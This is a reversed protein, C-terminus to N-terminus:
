SPIDKECFRYIMTAVEARTITGRPDIMQDPKGSIIGNEVVWGLPLKAYDSVTQADQFGSLSTVTKTNMDKSQALSLSTHFQRM